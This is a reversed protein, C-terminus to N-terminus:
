NLNLENIKFNYLSEGDTSYLKDGFMFIYNPLKIEAILQNKNNYIVTKELNGKRFFSYDSIDKYHIFLDNLNFQNSVTFQNNLELIIDKSTKVYYKAPNAAVLNLMNSDNLKFVDNEVFFRLEGFESINFTKENLNYTNKLSVSLIKDKSVVLLMDNLLKYDLIFDEVTKIFRTFVEEGTETDLALIFPNGFNIVRNGFHAYGKNVMFILKDKLFISSKSTNKDDLAFTWSIEGTSTNIKSLKEKSAFYIYNNDMLINSTIDRVLNPGSSIIATGTLVGLIVGATNKVVTETYDKKGTITLYDWGTGNKLNLTHLGGSAILLVSDNLKKTENWGYERSLDRNWLVNGNKLDIGQIKYNSNKEYQIGIRNIKDTYYLDNKDNWLQEGTTSNIYFVKNDKTITILNGNQWINETLYNIKRSWNVMNSQLNFGILEGKLAYSKENRKLKRLQLTLNGSTSDLYRNYIHNPFQYENALIDQKTLLIQGVIKHNQIVKIDLSQAFLGFGILIFLGLIYQTKM